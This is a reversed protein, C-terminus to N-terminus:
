DPCLSIEKEVPRVRSPQIKTKVGVFRLYGDPTVGEFTQPTERGDSWRVWLQMGPKLGLWKLEAIKKKRFVEHPANGFGKGLRANLMESAKDRPMHRYSDPNLGIELAMRIQDDSFGRDKAM